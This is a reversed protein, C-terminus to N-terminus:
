RGRAMAQMRDKNRVLGVYNDGIDAAKPRAFKRHHLAVFASVRGDSEICLLMKVLLLGEFSVYRWVPQDYRIGFDGQQYLRLVDQTPSPLKWM